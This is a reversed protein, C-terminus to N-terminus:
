AFKLISCLLKAKPFFNQIALTNYKGKSRQNSFKCLYGDVYIDFKLLIAKEWAPMFHINVINSSQLYKMIFINWANDYLDWWPRHLSLCLMQTWGLMPKVHLLTMNSFVILLIGVKCFHLAVIFRFYNITANQM